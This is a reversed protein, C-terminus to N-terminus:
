TSKPNNPWPTKEENLKRVTNRYKYLGTIILKGCHCWLKNQKHLATLTELHTQCTMTENLHQEICSTILLTQPPRPCDEHVQCTKM